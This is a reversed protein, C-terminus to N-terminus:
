AGSSACSRRLVARIGCGGGAVEPERDFEARLADLGGVQLAEQLEGLDEVGPEHAAHEVTGVGARREVLGLRVEAGRQGRVLGGVDRERELGVLLDGGGVEHPQDVREAAGLQADAEVGAVDDRAELTRAVRDLEGCREDRVDVHLVEREGALVAPDAEGVGAGRHAGAQVVVGVQELGHPGRSRPTLSITSCQSGQCPSASVVMRVSRSQVRVVMSYRLLVRHAGRGLGVPDGDDAGAALHAHAHGFLRALVAWM